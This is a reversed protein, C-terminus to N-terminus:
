FRIYFDGTLAKYKESFSGATDEIYLSERVVTVPRHLSFEVAVRKVAKYAAGQVELLRHAYLGRAAAKAIFIGSEQYPFIAAFRGNGPELLTVVANILEDYPLLEAHRAVIREASPLIANTSTDFFGRKFDLGAVFYPPNSVILDYRKAGPIAAYEQIPMLIGTLRNAWPSRSFNDHAEEFAAPDVEVADIRVVADAVTRQAMMLAIVGTGTGIDLIRGGAVSPLSVWAGLLVGDTGVKMASCTQEVEFQKFRFFGKKFEM